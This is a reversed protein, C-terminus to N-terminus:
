AARRTDRADLQKVVSKLATSHLNDIGNVVSGFSYARAFQQSWCNIGFGIIDVGYLDYSAQTLQLMSNMDGFGDTVVIVLKRSQPMSSMSEAVTRIASYDPTSGAAVRKMMAFNSAVATCRDQYRKAVCLTAPYDSGNRGSGKWEGQMDYGYSNVGRGGYADSFGVVEVKARAAEAAEAITWALDVAQKISEGKMSGSLDVVVSVATDIGDEVWRRKFVREAGALMRPARKGDFRGGLAGGDWGNREPARLIRFLQAKLAPLASKHLKRFDRRQKVDDAEALSKWRSMLSRRAPAFSALNVGNKTRESVAKFIDDVNPEPKRLKDEDLAETVDEFPDDGGVPQEDDSDDDLPMDLAGSGSTSPLEPAEEITDAIDSAADVSDDDEDEVDSDDGSFSLSSSPMNPADPIELKYGFDKGDLDDVDSNDSDADNEGASNDGDEDNFAQSTGEGGANPQQPQQQPAQMAEPEIVLWKDMFQNALAVAESSGTRDLPLDAMADVVTQYLARKPEPIRALLTKAYGNGDGYAARCVLALALPACNISAPNFGDTDLAITFKSMLKKFASRAGRANGSMIVAREIRADEIGNYLAFRASSLGRAAQADTFAVHGIEHLTYASIFDAERRSVMGNDPMAPYNIRYSTLRDDGVEWCAYATDGDFTANGIASSGAPIVGLAGLQKRSHVLAAAKLRAGTVRNSM